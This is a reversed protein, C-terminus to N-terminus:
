RPITRIIPRSALILREPSLQRGTRSRSGGRLSTAACPARTAPAPRHFAHPM